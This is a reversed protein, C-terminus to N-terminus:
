DGLWYPKRKFGIHYVTAQLTIEHEGVQYVGYTVDKGIIKGRGEELCRNLLKIQEDRNEETFVANPNINGVKIRKVFGADSLSFKEKSM